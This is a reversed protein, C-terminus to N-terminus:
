GDLFAFRERLEREDLGFDAATYHHTGHADRPHADLYAAVFTAPDEPPDLDAAAYVAAIAAAPDRVLDEYRLDVFTAGASAPDTRYAIARRFWHETQDAQFRGVDAADVEDSFTSRFVAFLSAGSAVTEVIDRHLHVVV